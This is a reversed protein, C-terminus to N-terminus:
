KWNSIIDAKWNLFIFVFIDSFFYMISFNFVFIIVISKLKNSYLKMKIKKNIAM